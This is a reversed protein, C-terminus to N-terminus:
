WCGSLFVSRMLGDQSFHESVRIVQEASHSGADADAAPAPLGAADPWAAACTVGGFSTTTITM